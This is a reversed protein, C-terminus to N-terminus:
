IRIFIRQRQLLVAVGTWVGLMAVGYVLSAAETSAIYTALWSSLVTQASRTETSATALPVIMLTTSTISSLVYIAIPNAGLAQLMKAWRRWGLHDVGYHLVGILALAVGGSALVFSGSWLQKNCPIWANLAVGAASLLVGGGVLVTARRAGDTPARLYSGAIVGVLVTAIAPLAGLLGEPDSEARLLHGSLLLRDVWAGANGTATRIGPGFAPVPFWALIGEYIAVLIAAAIAQTPIRPAALYLMAAGLYALALRQLVGPIRLTGLDLLHPYANVFLGLAFMITARRLVRRILVARGVGRARAAGFALPISAGMTVAFTPFVLDAATLGDWGSHALPAFVREFDGRNNVLIMGALALGRLVDLSEIRSRDAPPSDTM